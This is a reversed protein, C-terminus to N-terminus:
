LVSDIQCLAPGIHVSSCPYDNWQFNYYWGLVVCNESADNPEGDAWDTFNIMRGDTFIWDRGNIMHIGVSVHRKSLDSSSSLFAKLHDAVERSEVWLLHGGERECSAKASTWTQDVALYRYCLSLRRNLI